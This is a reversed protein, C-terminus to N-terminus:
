ITVDKFKGPSGIDGRKTSISILEQDKGQM